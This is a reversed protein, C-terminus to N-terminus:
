TDSLFVGAQFLERIKAFCRVLVRLVATRAPFHRSLISFVFEAERSHVLLGTAVHFVSFNM